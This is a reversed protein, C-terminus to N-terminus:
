SGGTGARRTPCGFVPGVAPQRNLIVAQDVLATRFEFPLQLCEHGFQFIASRTRSVWMRYLAAQAPQFSLSSNNGLSTLVITCARISTESLRISNRSRSSASSAVDAFSSCASM